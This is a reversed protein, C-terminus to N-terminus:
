MNNYGKEENEIAKDILLQPAEKHLDKYYRLVQPVRPYLLTIFKKTNENFIIISGTSMLCHIENGNRHGKDVLFSSVIRHRSQSLFLTIRPQRETLHKSQNNLFWDKFQANTVTIEKLTKM